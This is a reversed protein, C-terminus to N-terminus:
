RCAEIQNDFIRVRPALDHVIRTTERFMSTIRKSAASYNALLQRTYPMFDACLIVEIEMATSAAAIMINPTAV